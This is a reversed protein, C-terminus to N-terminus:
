SEEQTLFEEYADMVVHTQGDQMLKGKHLWLSRECLTRITEGAHSVLLLTRGQTKLDLVRRNCKEQFAADGVSLVEDILVIDPLIHVAVSFGLRASMGSSYHKLPSDIFPRIEAFDIIEDIIKDTERPPVGHIAANLYINKRGTLDPLFGAGLSLLAAFKGQVMVKGKTPPMIGSILRLLTTKGSGNRGVIAVSEGRNITFSVDELAWFQKSQLTPRRNLIQRLANVAEHRFSPRQEARVYQKYLKEVSIIPAHAHSM